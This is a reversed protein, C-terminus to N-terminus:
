SSWQTFPAPQLPGLTVFPKPENADPDEAIVVVSKARPPVGTRSLKPSIKEGYDAYKDPITEGAGFARSKVAISGARYVARHCTTAATRTGCHCRDMRPCDRRTESTCRETGIARAQRCTGCDDHGGSAASVHGASNSAVSTV